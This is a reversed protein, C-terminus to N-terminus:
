LTGKSSPIGTVREDFRTAADLARGFSKFAAECIHHANSGSLQQFHVTAGTNNAVARFFEVILETDFAGIKPSSYSLGYELHGRGSLDLACLVLAEDMPAFAHGYRTVGAKDGLAKAIATGLAIGVDEVTHHDDIHLDGEASIALDFLGHRAVQELMHDFFGVGTAITGTGAGDLDITVKVHTERTKREITALRKRQGM